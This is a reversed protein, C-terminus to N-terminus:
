GQSGRFDNQADVVDDKNRDQDATQGFMLLGFRAEEAWGQGHADPNQQQQRDTPHHTQGGVHAV